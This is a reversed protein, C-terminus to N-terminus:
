LPLVTTTLIEDPESDRGSAGAATAAPPMLPPLSRGIHNRCTVLDAATVVGNRDFDFRNDIAAAAGVARRTAVLDLATVTTDARTQGTGDGTEGLLSGFYFVDPRDMGTKADAKALVQLWEDRIAGSAWTILCLASDSGPPGPVLVVSAPSPAPAWDAAGGAPRAAVRFEFDSATLPRPTGEFEVLVGNIGRTYSSVNGFGPVEGPLLARKDPAVAALDAPTAAPNRGDFASANYFIRRDSVTVHQPFVPVGVDKVIALDLDSIFYRRAHYAVVGNMLDPILDSGPRPPNNGLHNPLGWTVPVDGGYVREAAPGTFYLNQGDSVVYEDWRSIYDAPVNGFGDRFGNFGIAHGIEHLCVGYADIRNSPVPATRVVPDPDFWMENVLYDDQFSIEIDAQPGNPDIGTRLEYVAGEEAVNYQGNFRYFHSVVSHGTARVTTPSFHVEIELSANSDIRRGWDNAAALMNSRIPEYYAAHSGDDVFALSFRVSLLRRSELIEIV